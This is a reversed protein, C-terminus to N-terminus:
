SSRSFEWILLYKLGCGSLSSYSKPPLEKWWIDGILFFTSRTGVWGSV